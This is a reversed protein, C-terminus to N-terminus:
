RCINVVHEAPQTIVCTKKVKGKSTNIRIAEPITESKMFIQSGQAVYGLEQNRTDSVFAGFPLPDGNSDLV